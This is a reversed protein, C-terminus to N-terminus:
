RVSGLNPPLSTSPEPQSAVGLVEPSPRHDGATPAANQWPLKRVFCWRLEIDRPRENRLGMGAREGGRDVRRAARLVRLVFSPALLAQPSRVLSIVENLRVVVADDCRGADVVRDFYRNLFDTGVPKNGHTAAYVFDGGVGISWPARVIRATARFYSRALARDIRRVRDLTNALAQAQLAAVSMGQGYIPDFSCVADGLLLWGVPYRRLREVHRRQNAPFRHTVTESLPECRSLVDAILSSEFGRLYDFMGTNDTPASEGNVGAMGVIWRGGELPLLMAVRKASPDDLM